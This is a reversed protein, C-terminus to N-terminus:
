RGHGTYRKRQTHCRPVSVGAFGQRDGMRDSGGGSSHGATSFLDKTYRALILLPMMMAALVGRRKV